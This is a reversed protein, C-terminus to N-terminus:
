SKATSCTAVAKRVFPSNEDPNNHRLVAMTSLLVEGVFFGLGLLVVISVRTTSKFPILPITPSEQQLENQM